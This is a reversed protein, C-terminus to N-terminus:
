ESDDAFTTVLYLIYSIEDVTHLCDKSDELYTKPDPWISGTMLLIIMSFERIGLAFLFLFIM